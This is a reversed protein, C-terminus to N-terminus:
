LCVAHHIHHWTPTTAIVAASHVVIKYGTLRGMEYGMDKLDSSSVGEEVDVIVAVSREDGDRDPGYVRVHRAGHLEAVTTVATESSRLVALLEAKSRAAKAEVGPM